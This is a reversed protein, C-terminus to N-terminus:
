KRILEASSISRMMAMSPSEARQRENRLPRKRRIGGAAFRDHRGDAVVEGVLHRKAPHRRDAADPEAQDLLRGPRQISRPACARCLKPGRTEILGHDLRDGRRALLQIGVALHLKQAGGPDSDQGLVIRAIRQHQLLDVVQRDDEVDLDRDGGIIM